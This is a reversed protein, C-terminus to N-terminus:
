TFFPMRWFAQEVPWFFPHLNSSFHEWACRWTSSCGLLLDLFFPSLTCHIHQFNCSLRTAYRLIHLRRLRWRNQPLAWVYPFWDSTNVLATTRWTLMWSWFGDSPIIQGPSGWWRLGLAEFNPSRDWSSVSPCSRHARSAAHFNALFMRFNSLSLYFMRRVKPFYTGAQVM